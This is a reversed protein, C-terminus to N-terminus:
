PRWRVGGNALRSVSLSDTLSNAHHRWKVKGSQADGIFSFQIWRDYYIVQIEIKWRKHTHKGDYHLGARTQSACLTCKGLSKTRSSQGHGHGLTWPSFVCVTIQIQHISYRCAWLLRRCTLKKSSTMRWRWVTPRSKNSWDTSVYTCCWGFM